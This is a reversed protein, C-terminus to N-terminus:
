FKVPDSRRKVVLEDVTLKGISLEEIRGTGVGVRGIALAGIALAGIAIAGVAVGAAALGFVAVGMLASSKSSRKMLMRGIKGGRILAIARSVPLAEARVECRILAAHETSVAESHLRPILHATQGDRCHFWSSQSGTRPTKSQLSLRTTWIQV